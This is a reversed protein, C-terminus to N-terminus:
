LGSGLYAARVAPDDFVETAPGSAILQGADLVFLRSALRQVMPVDHEVLLIALDSGEQVTTLVSGMDLTEQRDLGSSPEDLFLLRPETVLARGLEVLRGRGLSLAEIPRDADSMLGLLDLVRDCSEREEASPQSQGIVDRLFSTGGHCARRAVLLHDRATMGSFLEM